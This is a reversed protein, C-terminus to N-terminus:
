DKSLAGLTLREIEFDEYKLGKLKAYNLATEYDFFYFDQYIEYVPDNPNYNKYYALCKIIYINKIIKM